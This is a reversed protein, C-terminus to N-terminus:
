SKWSIGRSNHISLDWNVIRTDSMNGEALLATHLHSFIYIFGGIDLMCVALSYIIRHYVVLFHQMVKEYWTMSFLTVLVILAPFTPHLAPTSYVVTKM